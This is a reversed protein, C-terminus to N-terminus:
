RVAAKLQSGASFKPVRSAPITVRQGPNRPNVGTREKRSQVTFKGFGTFNVDDGNQLADKVADLVADVATAADKRSLGSRTAVSEVFESKTM